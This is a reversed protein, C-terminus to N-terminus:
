NCILLERCISTSPMSASFSCCASSSSRESEHDTTRELPCSLLFCGVDLWFIPRKTFGLPPIWTVSRPRAVVPRIRPRCFYIAPAAVCFFLAAFIRLTWRFGVSELLKTLLLPFIAGGAGNGGFIIGAALGRREVFWEPLWVITPYYLLGGFIGFLCGQTVILVGLSEAFSALVLALTAMGFSVWMLPKIWDPYSRYFGIVFLGEAILFGSCLTGIASIQVSSYRNFPPHSEYYNQFIGFASTMGWVMLELCLSSIVFKWADVGRDVPPLLAQGSMSGEDQGAEISTRRSVGEEGIGDGISTSPRRSAAQSSPVDTRRQVADGVEELQIQETEM